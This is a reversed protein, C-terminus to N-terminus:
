RRSPHADARLSSPNSPSFTGPVARRHERRQVGRVGRRDCVGEEDRGRRERVRARAAARVARRLDPAPLVRLARRRPPAVARALPRDRRGHRARLQARAAAHAHKQLAGRPLRRHLDRHVDDRRRPDAAPDRPPKLIRVVVSAPDAMGMHRLRSLVFRSSSRGM